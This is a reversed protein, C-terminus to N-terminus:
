QRPEQTETQAFQAKRIEESCPFIMGRVGRGSGSQFACSETSLVPAKSM